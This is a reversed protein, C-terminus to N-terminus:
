AALAQERQRRGRSRRPTRAVLWAPRELPDDFRMSDVRILADGLIAEAITAAAVHDPCRSVVVASAEGPEDSAFIIAHMGLAFLRVEDGEIRARIEAEGLMSRHWTVMSVFTAM